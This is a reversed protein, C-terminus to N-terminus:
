SMHLWIKLYLVIGNNILISYLIWKFIKKNLFLIINYMNIYYYNNWNMMKVYM